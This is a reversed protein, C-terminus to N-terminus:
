GSPNYVFGTEGVVTVSRTGVTVTVNSVTGGSTKARGLSDFVVPDVTSSLGLGAPLNTNQYTDSQVSRNPDKGPHTVSSTLAGSTCSARRYIAFGSATFDVGTDCGTAIALKQAYRLSTLVDDYFFKHDYDDRDLFMTGMAGGLIGIIIIVVVLEVLTFGRPVRSFSM